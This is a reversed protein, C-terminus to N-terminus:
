MRHKNNMNFGTKRENYSPGFNQRQRPPGYGYQQYLSQQQTDYHQQPRTSYTVNPNSNSPTATNVNPAPSDLIKDLASRVDALNAGTLQEVLIGNHFIFFTPVATIGMDKSLGLQLDEKVLMCKGTSAYQQAMVAYEPAIQKCPNCWNAHVDVCLIPVKRILDQKHELNQIETVQYHQSANPQKKEGLDGYKRYSM